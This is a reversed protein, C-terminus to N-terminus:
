GLRLRPLTSSRSHQHSSVYSVGGGRIFYYIVSMGLLSGPTVAPGPALFPAVGPHLVSLRPCSPGHVLCAWATFYHPTTSCFAHRGSSAPCKCPIDITILFFTRIVAVGNFIFFLEHDAKLPNGIIVPVAM